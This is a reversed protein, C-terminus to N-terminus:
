LSGKPLTPPSRPVPPVRVTVPLLSIPVYGSYGPPGAVIDLGLPCNSYSLTKRGELSGWISVTPPGRKRPPPSSTM